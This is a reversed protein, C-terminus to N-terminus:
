ELTIYEDVKGDDRLQKIQDSFKTFPIKISAYNVKDESKLILKVYYFGDGNSSLFRESIQGPELSMAMTARGGDVNMSDVLGGTEEYEIKDGLEAAVVTMDGGNENLMQQVRKDVNKANDDIEVMVKSRILSLGLMHKYESKSMGFNDELIKLFSEESREIGGVKRHTNFEKNIEEESVTIGKENAIKQAYAYEEVNNLATRKYENKVARADEDDGLRGSQQEVTKLSSRYIMLYDSYKVKEGDIKAVEVPIVQTLRYLMDGTNQVKYLAFYGAGVLLVLAFFAIIITNFVLKHKAYQLPYKFKRGKALIEERREEVKKSESKVKEKM